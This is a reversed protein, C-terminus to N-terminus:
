REKENQTRSNNIRESVTTEARKQEMKKQWDSMTRAQKAHQEKGNQSKLHEKAWENDKFTKVDDSIDYNEIHPTIIMKKICFPFWKNEESFEKLIKMVAIDDFQNHKYDSDKLPEFGKELLFKRFKYYGGTPSAPSYYTKLDEVTFDFSLVAGDKWIGTEYGNNQM